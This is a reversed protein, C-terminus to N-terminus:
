LRCPMIIVTAQGLADDIDVRLPGNVNDPWQMRCVPNVRRDAHLHKQVHGIRALYMGNFGVARDEPADGSLAPMIRQYEPFLPADPAEVFGVDISEARKHEKAATLLSDVAGTSLRMAPASTNQPQAPVTVSCLTHGDTATFRIHGPDPVEVLVQCLGPRTTDDSMFPEVCKLAATLHAPSIKAQM